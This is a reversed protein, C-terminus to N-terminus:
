KKFLDFRNMFQNAYSSDKFKLSVKGNKFFKIGEIKNGNLPAEWEFTTKKGLLYIFAYESRVEELEFVAVAADLDNIFDVGYHRSLTYDGGRPWWIAKEFNITDNALNPTKWQFHAKFKDVVQQVAGSRFDLSGAATKIYELIDMYNLWNDLEKYEPELETFELLYKGMFYHQIEKIFARKAANELKDVDRLGYGPFWKFQDFFRHGEKMDKRIKFDKSVHSEEWYTSDKRWDDWSFATNNSQELMLMFAKRINSLQKLTSQLDEQERACWEADEKPILDETRLEIADFKELLTPEHKIVALENM